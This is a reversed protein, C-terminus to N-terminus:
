LLGLERARAVAETRRKVQLKDYIIRNHGKVTSLALYLREAIQRNSLGEAVLQLVELERESLPEFLPQTAPPAPQAAPAPWEAAFAALLTRAYDPLIAQEAAQTLLRVMPQGEDTFIRVYGEPEALALARELLALAQPLNDQAEYALAQQVLIEIASGMRGGDEAAQRLRALLTIAEDLLGTEQSHRYQALRVRALTIQEFERLYGLQDEASLGQERVWALAAALNGQAAWVQARLAAIPRVDPVPGRIYLREAEELLELAGPLDGQAWKVRAQALCWQERWRPLAAQESLGESKQLHHSAAAVNGQEWHLESLGLHLEATGRLPPEGQEQALQLAQEYVKIAEHLRGQALRIDARIYTGTIAFLINGAKQYSTMAESFSHYAEDLDGSAWAALGLLAAPTGRRHYDEEPILSLARRAHKVTGPMDDLALALYTRAAAITAPLMQLQEKDASTIEALPVNHTKKEDDLWQEALQLRGEAAELEGGDLLAWAYNANLVPRVRVVEDPLKAVWGLWTTSERNRDMNPWALEALDAVCALDNAAFAHRVADALLGNEKYWQCARHHLIPLQEPQERLMHALLVDAFLHHYRYWHRRDDLSIVFLNGQELMKLQQSGSAQGTVAECLSGSLRDLIATQLLFSRVAAPQRQLVEEVLYDVIYRNDGAFAQIFGHIDTRGQMSLAALQLGAIWGETRTELSTIEDATLNLGMIKQLFVATEEGTFRLDAARLENLQGRVRLRSLPLLPDERTTIVLHMQPPLHDLMFALAEDIASEDVVHYDDLVLILKDPVAALENLFTTLLSPTPVPQPSELLNQTQQGLTPVATQLAAVLYTFFRTLDSDNVDLSLWAATLGTEKLWSSILTTKGFGAPASVLTLKCRFAVGIGLCHNLRRTLHPRPVVDAHSPPVFLKTALIPASM